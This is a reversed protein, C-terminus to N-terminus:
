NDEPVSALIASWVWYRTQELPCAVKVLTPGLVLDGVSM